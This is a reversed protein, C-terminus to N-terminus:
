CAKGPKAQSRKDARKPKAESEPLRRPADGPRRRPTAALTLGSRRTRCNTTRPPALGSRCLSVLRWASRPPTSVLSPALGLTGVLPPSAPAHQFARLATRCIVRTIQGPPHHESPEATEIIRPMAHFSVASLPSALNIPDHHPRLDPLAERRGEFPHVHPNSSPPRDNRTLNQILRVQVPNEIAYVGQAQLQHTKLRRGFFGTTPDDQLRPLRRVPCPSNSRRDIVLYNESPRHRAPGGGFKQRSFEAWWVVDIYVDIFMAEKRTSRTPQRGEEPRRSVACVLVSVGYM